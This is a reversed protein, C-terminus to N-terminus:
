TPLQLHLNPATSSPPTPTTPPSARSVPATSSHPASALSAQTSSPTSVRSSPPRYSTLPSSTVLPPTSSPPPVPSLFPRWVVRCWSPRPPPLLWSLSFLSSRCIPSPTQLQITTQLCCRHSIGM